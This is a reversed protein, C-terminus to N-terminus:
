CQIYTTLLVHEATRVNQSVSISIYYGNHLCCTLHPTHRKHRLLRRCRAVYVIVQLFAALGHSVSYNKNLRYTCLLLATNVMMITYCFRTACEFLISSSLTLTLAHLLCSILKINLIFYHGHEGQICIVCYSLYSQMWFLNHSLPYTPQKVLSAM